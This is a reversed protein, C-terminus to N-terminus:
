TAAFLHKQIDLFAHRIRGANGMRKIRTEYLDSLEHKANSSGFDLTDVIDIVERLSYGSRFRNIIETFIEGIKYEISDADNADAAFGKLYPFLDGNVFEILDQGTM